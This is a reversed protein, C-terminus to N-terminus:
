ENLFSFDGLNDLDADGVITKSLKIKQEISLPSSSKYRCSDFYNKKFKSKELQNKPAILNEM